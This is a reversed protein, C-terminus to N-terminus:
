AKEVKVKWKENGAEIETMGPVEQWSVSVALTEAAVYGDFAEWAAKLRPSCSLTLAIRDTVELGTEKRLNQIGRVLDRVDGERSLEETIETDLAVTLTGENLVKLSVKEVRRVDLKDATINVAAGGGLDFSLSAGDLLGQIETQTLAAIRAAAARMDAGRGAAALEKGLVRFNAKVEYDVLDDENDRFIVQKVNLEEKTIDEMELLAAM